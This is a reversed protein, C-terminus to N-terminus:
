GGREHGPRRAYLEIAPALLCRGGSFRGVLGASGAVLARLMAMFRAREDSGEGSEAVLPSNRVAVVDLGAREVLARLGRPTFSWLHLVPSLPVLRWLWPASSLLRAMSAHFRANTVRIVVVGGPALVRCGEAVVALPDTTHDVVNLLTVADAAGERVPLRAGDGQIAPRGTNALAAVCADRSLDTAVTRWGLRAAAVSLDGSSGGVDLLRGPPRLATLRAAISAFLRSRPDTARAHPFHRPYEVDYVFRIRAGEPLASQRLTRCSPCRRFARGCLLRGADLVGGCVCREDNVRSLVALTEELRAVSDDWAYRTEAHRRCARRLAEGGTADHSLEDLFRELDDAMAAASTSSFLLSKSLPGLIEPTAGVATGLVPTGCALAEVTVLGFGELAQTPLVFADAAQYCRALRAEEVFGLFRVHEALGLRAVLSELEGRLAGDGGIALLVDPVQRRLRDLARILEDLGMRPQLNRLTFLIPRGAPWGLEARVAARPGDPPHLRSTDAGGEIKVVRDDDLGYLTRLLGASYDSLVHIRGVRALSWREVARLFVAGAGGAIGRRHWDTTGRRGQYELAAPSHFTYLSPVRRLGPATLVGFASLPQHFHLVDAGHDRVEDAVARRAGLISALIFRSAPRRAATFHRIAVGERDVTEAGGTVPQRAIVRVRHGRAALRRAQEWIVRESGGVVAAPSVDAVILVRLPATV